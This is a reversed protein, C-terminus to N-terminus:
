VGGGREGLGLEGGGDGSGDCGGGGSEGLGRGGGIGGGSEGGDDGGGGGHSLALCRVSRMLRRKAFPPGRLVRCHWMGGQGASWMCVCVMSDAPTMARAISGEESGLTGHSAHMVGPKHHLSMLSRKGAVM